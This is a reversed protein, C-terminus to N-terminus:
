FPAGWWAACPTSGCFVLRRLGNTGPMAARQTQGWCLGTTGGTSGVGLLWCAHLLCVSGTSALQVHARSPESQTTRAAVHYCCYTSRCWACQVVPICINCLYTIAVASNSSWAGQRTSWATHVLTASGGLGRGMCGQLVAVRYVIASACVSFVAPPEGGAPLHWAQQPTWSQRWPLCWVAAREPWHPAGNRWGRPRRRHYHRLPCCMSSPMITLLVWSCLKSAHCCTGWWVWV